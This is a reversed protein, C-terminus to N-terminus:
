FCMAYAYSLKSSPQRMLSAYKAKHSRHVDPGTHATDRRIVGMAPSSCCNLAACLGLELVASGACVQIKPLRASLVPLSAQCLGMWPNGWAVQLLPATSDPFSLGISSCVLVWWAFSTVIVNGPLVQCTGCHNRLIFIQRLIKYDCTALISKFHQHPSVFKCLFLNSALVQYGYISM